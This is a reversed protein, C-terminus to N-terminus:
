TSGLVTLSLFRPRNFPWNGAAAHLPIEKGFLRANVDAGLAILAEILEGNNRRAASFLELSTSAHERISVGAAAMSQLTALDGAAAAQIAHNAAKAALAKKGSSAARTASNPKSTKTM